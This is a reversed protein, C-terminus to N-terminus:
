EEEKMSYKITFEFRDGRIVGRSYEIMDGNIYLKREVLIGLSGEAINLYEGQVKNIICPKIKQEAELLSFDFKEKFIEYMPREELKKRTLNEIYAKPIITKSYMLPEEDAYKIREIEYIPTKDPYIGYSDEEKEEFAIVKGSPIKGRKRMEETFSYFKDIKQNLMPAKVYTGDGIKRAILNEKELEDLAKRIPTRSMNFIQMLERESPILNGSKLVGKIIDRKLKKYIINSKDKRM